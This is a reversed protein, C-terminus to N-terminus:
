KRRPAKCTLSLALTILRVKPLQYYFIWSRIINYHKEGDLRAAIVAGTNVVLQSTNLVAVFLGVIVREKTHHVVSSVWANRLDKSLM